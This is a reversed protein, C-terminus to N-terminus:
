QPKLGAADRAAELTERKAITVGPLPSTRLTQQIAAELSLAGSAEAAAPSATLPSGEQAWGPACWLVSALLFAARATGGRRCRSKVCNMILRRWFHRCRSHM